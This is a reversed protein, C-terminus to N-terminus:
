AREWPAVPGPVVEFLPHPDPMALTAWRALTDPSRSQLKGCLHQWERVLQGDTATIPAISGAPQLKTADFHFGRRQSEEHVARLYSEIAGLPDPQAQFRLFQPHRKYGRTTGSLVARALLAERWLATLGQADLYRPHLTWLRM